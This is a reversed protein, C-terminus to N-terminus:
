QSAVPQKVQSPKPQELTGGGVLAVQWLLAVQPVSERQVVSPQALFHLVSAAHGRPSTQRDLTHTAGVVVTGGFGRSHLSRLSQWDPAVHTLPCHWAQPPVRPGHAHTVLVSQVPVSRHTPPLQVGFAAVQVKELSHPPPSMQASPWHRAPQSVLLGQPLPAWHSRPTHM